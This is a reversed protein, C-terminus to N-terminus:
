LPKMSINSSDLLRIFYGFSAWSRNVCTYAQVWSSSVTHPVLINKCYTYTWGESLASRKKRDLDM